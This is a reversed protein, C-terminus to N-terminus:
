GMVEWAELHTNSTNGFNFANVTLTGAVNLGARMKFTTATQSGLALIHNIALTGTGGASAVTLTNTALGNAASDRFLAITINTLVSTVGVFVGLVRALNCPSSPILTTTVYQEGETNQPVTNDCPILGTGSAASTVISASYEGDSRRAATRRPWLPCRSQACCEM